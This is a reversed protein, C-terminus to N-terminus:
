TIVVEITIANTAEAEVGNVYGNVIIDVTKTGGIDAPTLSAAPRHVTIVGAADAPGVSVINWWGASGTIYAGSVRGEGICRITVTGDIFDGAASVVAVLNATITVNNADSCDIRSTEVRTGGCGTAVIVTALLPFSFRVTRVCSM